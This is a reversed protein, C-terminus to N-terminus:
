KIYIYIYTPTHSYAHLRYHGQKTKRTLYNSRKLLQSILSNTFLQICWSITQNTIFFYIGLPCGTSVLNLIFKYHSAAFDCVRTCSTLIYIILYVGVYNPLHCCQIIARVRRRQSYLTYILNNYLIKNYIYLMVPFRLCEEEEEEEQRAWNRLGHQEKRPGYCPM